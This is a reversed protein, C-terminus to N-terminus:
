KSPSRRPASRATSRLTMRHRASPGSRSTSRVSASRKAPQSPSKRTNLSLAMVDNSVNQFGFKRYWMKVHEGTPELFIYKLGRGRADKIIRELLQTGYGHGTKAGILFLYTAGGLHPMNKGMVAFAVLRGKDDHVAYNNGRRKSRVMNWFWGAGIYNKVIKYMKSRKGSLVSRKPGTSITVPM